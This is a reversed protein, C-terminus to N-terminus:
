IATAVAALGAPILFPARGQPLGEILQAIRDSWGSLAFAALKELVYPRCSVRVDVDHKVAASLRGVAKETCMLRVHERLGLANAGKLQHLQLTM